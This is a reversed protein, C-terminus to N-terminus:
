WTVAVWSTQQDTVPVTPVGGGSWLRVGDGYLVGPELRGKGDYLSKGQNLDGDQIPEFKNM